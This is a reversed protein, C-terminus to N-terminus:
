CKGGLALPPFYNSYVGDLIKNFIINDNSDLVKKLYTKIKEESLGNLLKISNKDLKNILSLVNGREEDKLSSYFNINNINPSLLQLYEKEKGLYETLYNESYSDILLRSYDVIFDKYSTYYSRLKNINM